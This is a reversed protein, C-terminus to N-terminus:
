RCYNRNKGKKTKEEIKATTTDKRGVVWIYKEAEKPVEGGQNPV